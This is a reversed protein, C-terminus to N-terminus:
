GTRIMRSVTVNMQATLEGSRRDRAAVDANLFGLATRSILTTESVSIAALCTRPFSVNPLTSAIVPM